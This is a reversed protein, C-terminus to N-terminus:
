FVKACFYRASVLVLVGSGIMTKNALALRWGGVALRGAGGDSNLRPAGQASGAVGRTLVALWVCSVRARTLQTHSATSM